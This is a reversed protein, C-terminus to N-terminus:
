AAAGDPAPESTGPPLPNPPSSSLISRAEEEDLIKLDYGAAILEEAKVYGLSRRVGFTFPRKDEFVLMTTTKGVSAMMRAGAAALKLALEGAPPGLIAVREGALPGGDAATPRRVREKKPWVRDTDAIGASGFDISGVRPIALRIGFHGEDHQNTRWGGVIRAACSASSLSLSRMAAHVREAQDRSLFCVLNKEVTVKVANPDHPNEPDLM